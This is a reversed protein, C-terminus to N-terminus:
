LLWMVVIPMVLFAALTQSTIISAMAPAEGGLQRALIYSSTDTPAVLAVVLAGAASGKM